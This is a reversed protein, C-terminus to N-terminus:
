DCQRGHERLLEERIRPDPDTGLYTDGCYVDYPGRAEPAQGTMPSQPEITMFGEGTGPAVREQEQASWDTQALAPGVLMALAATAIILRKM